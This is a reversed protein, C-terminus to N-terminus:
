ALSYVSAFIVSQTVLQSATFQVLQKLVDINNQVLNFRPPAAAITSSESLIENSSSRWCFKFSSCSFRSAKFFPPPPPLNSPISGRIALSSDPIVSMLTDRERMSSLRLATAREDSKFSSFP